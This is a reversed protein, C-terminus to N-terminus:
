SARGQRRRHAEVGAALAKKMLEPDRGQGSPHRLRWGAEEDPHEAFYAAREEDTPFVSRVPRGVDPVTPADKIQMALTLVDLHRPDPDRKARAIARKATAIYGGADLRGCPWGDGVDSRAVEAFGLQGHHRTAVILRDEIEGTMPNPWSSQVDVVLGRVGVGPDGGVDDAHKAAEDLVFWGRAIATPTM